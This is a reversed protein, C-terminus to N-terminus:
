IPSPTTTNTKKEVASRKGGGDLNEKNNAKWEKYRAGKERRWDSIPSPEKV